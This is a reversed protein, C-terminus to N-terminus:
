VGIKEDEITKVKSIVNSDRLSNPPANFIIKKAWPTM